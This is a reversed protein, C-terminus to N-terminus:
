WRLTGSLIVAYNDFIFILLLWSLCATRCNRRQQALQLRALFSSHRSHLFPFAGPLWHVFDVLETRVYSNMHEFLVLSLVSPLKDELVVSYDAALMALSSYNNASFFLLIIIVM